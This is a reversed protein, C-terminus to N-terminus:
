LMAVRFGRISLLTCRAWEGSGLLRIIQYGTFTQGSALPVRRM